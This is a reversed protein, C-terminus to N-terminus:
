RSGRYSAKRLPFSLCHQSIMVNLCRCTMKFNDLVLPSKGLLHCFQQPHVISIYPLLLASSWLLSPLSLSLLPSLCISRIPSLSHLHLVIFVALCICVFFSTHSRAGAETYMHGSTSSCLFVLVNLYAGKSLGGKLFSKATQGSTQQCAGEDDASRQIVVVGKQKIASFLTPHNIWPSLVCIVPVFYKFTIASIAPQQCPKIKLLLYGICM